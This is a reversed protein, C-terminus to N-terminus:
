HSRYRDTLIVDFYFGSNYYGGAKVDKVVPNKKQKERAQFQQHKNMDNVNNRFRAAASIEKELEEPSKISLNREKIM